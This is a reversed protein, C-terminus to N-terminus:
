EVGHLAHPHRGHATRQPRAHQPRASGGEASYVRTGDLWTELVVLDSLAQPSIAFPDQDIRIFDARKGVELTGVRGESFSAKAAESTYARLASLLDIRHQPTLVDGGDEWPDQRTVAVEIAEFPNMSSVSWDSGAVLTGGAAQVAGIPYLWESRETGIVPWTLETIYPEPYAWLPQFCAYAGLEAFRPLDDPDIVELHAVLPRRDRNGNRQATTEVADLFQRVAGDGIAHAHLQFGAADFALADTLLEQDSFNPTGNTGNTYPKLMYATGSEIIGDIFLKVADVSILDSTYQDRWASIRELSGTDSPEVTATAHVRVTLTGAAEARAYGSLLWEDYVSADIITTIGFLNAEALGNALGEDIQAEPYLPVLVAVLDMASEQLIGTTEGQADHEIQGDEPDATSATIGALALAKSNVFATHGDASYLIVPRDPVVEDLQSKNLLGDFVAMDWGGGEVWAAEPHASAWAAVISQLEAVSGAGFLDVNLLDTASWILHTHTDHFGPLVTQGSLAIVQTDAGVYADADADSGVFVIEGQRIAMAEAVTNSPNLTYIRGSKLVVTAPDASTNPQCGALFLLGSTVTMVLRAPCAPHESPPAPRAFVPAQSRYLRLFRLMPPELFPAINSLPM